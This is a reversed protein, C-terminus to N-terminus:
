FKTKDEEKKIVRDLVKNWISLHRTLPSAFVGLSGLLVLIFSMWGIDITNKISFLGAYFFLYWIILEVIWWLFNRSM